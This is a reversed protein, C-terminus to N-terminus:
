HLFQLNEQSTLTQECPPIKSGALVAKVSITSKNKYVSKKHVYAERNDHKNLSFASGSMQLRKDVLIHIGLQNAEVGGRGLRKFKLREIQSSLCLSTPTQHTTMHM